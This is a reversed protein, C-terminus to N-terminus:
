VESDKLVQYPSLASWIDDIDSFKYAELNGYNGRPDGGGHWKIVLFVKGSNNEWFSFDADFMTHVSDESHGLYNYTNDSKIDLEFEYAADLLTDADYDLKSEAYENVLAYLNVIEDGESDIYRDTINEAEMYCHFGQYIKGDRMGYCGGSIGDRCENGLSELYERCEDQIHTVIDFERNEPHNLWAQIVEKFSELSEIQVNQDRHTYVKIRISAM